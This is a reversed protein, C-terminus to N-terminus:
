SLANLYAPLTEVLTKGEGTRMEAIRGQHLAIGGLIQVYFHRMQLVRASAERVVAYADPLIDDLTKGEFLQNKLVETQLKLEDDSMAKYKEELEIVKDAIKKLKKISRSNDSPFLWSFLGM